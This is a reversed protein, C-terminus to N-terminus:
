SRLKLRKSLSLFIPILLLLLFLNEPIELRTYREQWGTYLHLTTEKRDCSVSMTFIINCGNDKCSNQIDGNFVVLIPETKEFKGSLGVINYTGVSYTGDDQVIIEGSVSCTAGQPTIDGYFYFVWIGDDTDQFQYTEESKWWYTKGNDLPQQAPPPSSTSLKGPNGSPYEGAGPYFYLTEQPVYAQTPITTNLTIILMTITALAIMKMVIPKVSTTKRRYHISLCTMIILPIISATFIAHNQLMPGMAEIQILRAIVLMLPLVTLITWTKKGIKRKKERRLFRRLHYFINLETIRGTKLTRFWASEKEEFLGKLSAVAQSLALIHMLPIFGLAGTWHRSARYELFLGTLNVLPVAMLNTFLLSWGFISTWFPIRAHLLEAILWCITGMIFFFSNLYYPTLYMFELKERLSLFKSRIIEWFYRKVAYTHGEAWRARQRMLAMITSPCEAPAAVFPTYSVKYGDRYLRLTLDWDETLSERWGYRRLIDARIMFVSGAIMKVGPLNELFFREVLYNGAYEATVSRTIWNESANLIHWQYGQVAVITNKRRWVEFSDRGKVSNEFEQLFRWLIDKPPIFDADFVVVYKADESMHELATNLAGGKFGRRSDRHIIKVRSNKSWKKLKETTSDTSDDVVIVEYNPYDLTTLAEMLRDVVREENYLPVHISILPADVSDKSNDRVDNNKRELNNNGTKVIRVAYNNHEGGNRTSVDNESGGRFLNVAVNFLALYYRIAYTFFLIGFGLAIYALTEAIM